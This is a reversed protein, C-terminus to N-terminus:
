RDLRVLVKGATGDNSALTLFADNAEALPVQRSILERLVSPATSVWAAADAFDQASYTFSGVISREETSVRFADFVLQQAGMGVLVVTGGFKTSSLADAVTGPVGVADLSVDALRSFAAIVQESVTAVTPDIVRAGLRAVLERRASSMESVVIDTVGEMSLALVISQGIPGGGAVFASSGPQVNGRRVAHLAVALPEILAGYEIPMTLPLAVVNTLPVAILQAFSAVIDATVGIVKKDPSHQERGRYTVADETSVLVPNFTVVQGVAMGSHETGAGLAAVRGVSEHGMVQGPVRRGNGGTFGHIDSGCIGTAVIEILVEGLAAAPDALSIVEAHGFETLVLAKM